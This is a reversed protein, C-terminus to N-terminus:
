IEPPAPRDLGEVPYLLTVVPWYSGDTFHALLVYPYNPSASFHSFGPLNIWRSVRPLGMLDRAEEFDVPPERPTMPVRQAPDSARNM